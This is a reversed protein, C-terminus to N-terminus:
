QAKELRGRTCFKDCITPCEAYDGVICALGTDDYGCRTDRVWRPCASADVPRCNVDWCHRERPKRKDVCVWRGDEIALKQRREDACRPIPPPGVPNAYLCGIDCVYIDGRSECCKEVGSDAGAVGACGAVICFVVGLLFGFGAGAFFSAQMLAREQDSVERVGGDDEGALRV